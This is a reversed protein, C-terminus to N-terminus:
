KGIAFAIAADGYQVAWQAEAVEREHAAAAQQARYDEETVGAALLAQRLSPPTSVRPTPAPAVPAPAQATMARPAPPSAVRSTPRGALEGPAIGAMAFWDVSADELSTPNTTHPDPSSAATPATVQGSARAELLAALEAGNVHDPIDLRAKREALEARLSAIEAARDDKRQESEAAHICSLWPLEPSAKAKAEARAVTEPTVTYGFSKSLGEARTRHHDTIQM